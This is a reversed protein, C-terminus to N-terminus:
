AFSHSQSFELFIRQRMVVGEEGELFVSLFSLGIVGKACLEILASM